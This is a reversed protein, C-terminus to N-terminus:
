YSKYLNIRKISEEFKKKIKDLESLSDKFPTSKSM